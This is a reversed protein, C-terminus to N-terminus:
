AGPCCPARVGIWLMFGPAIKSGFQEKFRPIYHFECQPRIFLDRTAYLEIGIGTFVQFRATNKNKIAEAISIFTTNTGGIGAMLKLVMRERNIPAYIGSFEYFHQQYKVGATKKGAPLFSTSFGGGYHHRLIDGGIGLFFDDLGAMAACNPDAPNLACKDYSHNNSNYKFGSGPAKLHAYGFGMAITFSGNWLDSWTWGALKSAGAGPTGAPIKQPSTSDVAAKSTEGANSDISGDSQCVASAIEPILMLFVAIITWFVRRMKNPM